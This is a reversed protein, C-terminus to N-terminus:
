PIVRRASTYNKRYYEDNLSSVIVGQSSSAHVFKKEGVYIGVHSIERSNFSFFVLDGYLLNKKEVKKVLTYLKKTDHPLSIGSYRRYVERVLGSCDIGLRSTGNKKYPAGMYSNIINNMKQINIKSKQTAPVPKGRPIQGPPRYVPYASCNVLIISIFLYLFGKRM